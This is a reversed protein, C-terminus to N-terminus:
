DTAFNDQGSVNKCIQQSDGRPEGSENISTESECDLGRSNGNRAGDKVM